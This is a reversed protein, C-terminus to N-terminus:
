NICPTSDHAGNLLDEPYVASFIHLKIAVPHWLDMFLGYPIDTIAPAARESGNNIGAIVTIYPARDWAAAPVPM